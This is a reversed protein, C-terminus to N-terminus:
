KSCCDQNDLNPELLPVDVDKYNRSSSCILEYRYSLLENMYRLLKDIRRQKIKDTSKQQKM